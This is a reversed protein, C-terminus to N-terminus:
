TSRSWPTIRRFSALAPGRSTGSTGGHFAAYEELASQLDEVHTFRTDGNHTYSLLRFQLNPIEQAPAVM